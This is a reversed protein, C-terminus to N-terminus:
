HYFKLQGDYDNIHLLTLQGLQKGTDVYITNESKSVDNVGNHGNVVYRVNDIAYHRGNMASSYRGYGWLANYAYTDYEQKFQWWDNPTCEAHVIGVTGHITEVEFVHPLKKFERVYKEQDEKPLAKFWDNGCIACNNWEKGSSEYYEIAIVEHNGLVSFFWPKKLWELIEPSNKGRDINDGVSFLRDKEPDFNVSALLVELMRYYGHIDGVVFDRGKQNIPFSQWHLKYGAM